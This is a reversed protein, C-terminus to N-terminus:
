VVKIDPSNEGIVMVNELNTEYTENQTQITVVSYKRVKYAARRIKVIKGHVGINKGGIIIGYMNEALPYAALINQSPIEIKLTALTPYKNSEERSILINRGDELNLQIKGGKVATKNLIRVLKYKSQDETIAIPVMYRARDPAMLYYLKAEPISIIDMLGIPFRYDRRIVGDVAVKGDSIIKKAERLTLALNLYDRLIIALPISKSLPHPGPNVRVTWKYEKKSIKLFWPAEKRTIHPM